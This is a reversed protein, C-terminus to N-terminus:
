WINKPSCSKKRTPLSRFRWGNDRPSTPPSAKHGVDLTLHHARNRSIVRTLIGLAPIFNMEPFRTVMDDDHFVTTGPSLELNPEAQEALIPFSGTGAAVIRPVELGSLLLQDRFRILQDWGANVAATREYLDPQRHHGDYWHLGGVQLGDASLIM